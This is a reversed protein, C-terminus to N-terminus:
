YMVEMLGSFIIGLYLFFHKESALFYTTEKCVTEERIGTIAEVLLFVVRIFFVRKYSRFDTEM